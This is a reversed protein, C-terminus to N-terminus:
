ETDAVACTNVGKARLALDLKAQAEDELTVNSENGVGGAWPQRGKKLLLLRAKSLVGSAIGGSTFNLIM